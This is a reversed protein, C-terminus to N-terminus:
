SWVLLGFFCLTRGNAKLTEALYLNRLRALLRVGDHGWGKAKLEGRNRYQGIDRDLSLRLRIAKMEVGQRSTKAWSDLYDGTGDTSDNEVFVIKIKSFYQILSELKRRLQPLHPKANRVLGGVLLTANATKSRGRQIREAATGQYEAAGVAAFCALLPFVFNM